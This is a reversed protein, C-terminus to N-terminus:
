GIPSDAWVCFPPRSHDDRKIIIQCNPPLIYMYIIITSILRRQSFLQANIHVKWGRETPSSILVNTCSNSHPSTQITNCNSSSETYLATSTITSSYGWVSFRLSHKELIYQETFSNHLQTIQRRYICYTYMYMYHYVCYELVNIVHVHVMIRKWIKM